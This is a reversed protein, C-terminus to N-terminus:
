RPCSRHRCGDFVAPQSGRVGQGGPMPRFQRCIRELQATTTTRAIELLAQENALTAVRTMARVKAYAVEGRRLAEDLAPLGGLARGM